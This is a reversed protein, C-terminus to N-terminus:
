NFYYYVEIAKEYHEVNQTIDGLVCYYFPNKNDKSILELILNEAKELQNLSKYCQVVEDWMKLSEYILLSEQFFFILKFIFFITYKIILYLFADLHNLFKLKYKKQMGFLRRRHLM